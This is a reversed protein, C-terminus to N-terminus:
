RHILRLLAAVGCGAALLIPAVSRLAPVGVLFILITGITFILGGANSDAPIRALDIEARLSHAPLRASRADVSRTDVSRTDM